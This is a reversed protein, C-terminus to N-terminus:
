LFFRRMFETIAAVTVILAIAYVRARPRRLVRAIMGLLFYGIPLCILARWTKTTQYLWSALIWILVCWIIEAGVAAITKLTRSRETDM